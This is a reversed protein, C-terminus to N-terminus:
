ADEKQQERDLLAESIRIRSQLRQVRPESDPDDVAKGLNKLEEELDAKRLQLMQIREARNAKDFVLTEPFLEEVGTQEEPLVSAPPPVFRQQATLPRQNMFTPSVIEIGAGHLTDLVSAKLASRQSLLHRVDRYFGAAKYTVSFDGLSLIQVFPDELGANVAAERLLQEVERHPVDYGLSVECSLVTGSSRMVRVPKTALFLNPLTILDSHESQIETHFLGRETVKGFFTDVEIFDGPNFSRVSRLMLGAMINAVFTTSSFAVIGTFLIGLLGLLEARLSEEVPLSLVLVVLAVMTIVIMALQRWVRYRRHLRPKDILLRDAITLGAIVAAVALLLPLFDLLTRLLSEM